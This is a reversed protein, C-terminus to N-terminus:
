EKIGFIDLMFTYYLAIDRLYEYRGSKGAHGAGMNTKLLLRTDKNTKMARLKATWKAPEWYQVRPDNLGATILIHPYNKAEINDYPSYSYMYEFYEKDEPNGWEEYEMVTLPISKDLMTTIVDIFPVQAIVARFLDPRMNVVAGMLLGGASGGLIVLNEKSTYKERILYEACDIFDMFTNKKKLLKGNLYWERGLEGGGRIHAIAFIFGRDILSLRSSLFQPDISYGYSGYGYLLLPNQGNKEIGKKYVTSIYVSTGDQATAVLRETNYLSSDYGGVIEIQKILVLQKSNMNYDFVSTPTILSTYNIRITNDTYGPDILTTVPNDTYTVTYIPEPFQIKHEKKTSWEIIRITVLGDERQFLAIFDKQPFVRTIYIAEDYDIFEKWNKKSTDAIKCKMVKFNVANLNTHILFEGSHHEVYYELDKERLHIVKAGDLPNETSVYHIESTSKSKLVIFIFQRDISKHFWLYYKEDVEKYILKDNQVKTGLEHVFVKDPQKQPNLTCYLVTKNDSCWEFSYSANKISTTLDDEILEDTELNKFYITFEESGDTDLSYALIRNDPSIKFFGLKLYKFDKVLENEDILLEEKGEEGKKRFYKKYEKGTETKYYYYYDGFKELASIDDEKIRNKMENYLSEQFNKTHQLIKETYENEAKLYEIVENNERERLWYYDDVLTKGHIENKVTHIKAIPPKPDNM